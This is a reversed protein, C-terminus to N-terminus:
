TEFIFRVQDTREDSIKITWSVGIHLTRPQLFCLPSVSLYNLALYPWNRAFADERVEARAKFL